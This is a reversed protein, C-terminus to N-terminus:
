QKRQGILTGLSQKQNEIDKQTSEQDAKNQTLKKELETQDDKLGRLKKEAKAVVEEQAKIQLELNAAEINPRLNSLFIKANEVDEVTMGSKINSGDKQMIMYIIAEDKDKRSKREVRFIYDLNTGSVETIFASKYLKFGKDKNFIGKEEKPKYGLKELKAAIANEAAEPPYAYDIIFANQKKKSYEVTGEYATQAISVLSFFSAIFAFFIKKMVPSKPLLSVPLSLLTAIRKFLSNFIRRCENKTQKFAVKTRYFELGKLPIFFSAPCVKHYPTLLM